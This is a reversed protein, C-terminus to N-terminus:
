LKRNLNLRSINRSLTLLAASLVIPLCCIGIIFLETRFRMNGLM